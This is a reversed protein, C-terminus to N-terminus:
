RDNYCKASARLTTLCRPAWIKKVIPEDIATLDTKRVPRGDKVGM